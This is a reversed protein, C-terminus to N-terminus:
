PGHNLRIPAGGSGTLLRRIVAGVDNANEASALEAARQGASVRKEEVLVTVVSPAVRRVLAAYGETGGGGALAALPMVLAILSAAFQRGM